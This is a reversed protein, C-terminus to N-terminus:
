AIGDGDTAQIVHILSPEEEKLGMNFTPTKSSLNKFVRGLHIAGIM